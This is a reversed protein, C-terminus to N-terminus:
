SVQTAPPVIDRPHWLSLCLWLGTQLHYAFCSTVLLGTARDRDLAKESTSGGRGALPHHYPRLILWFCCPTTGERVEGGELLSRLLCTRQVAPDNFARPSTSLLNGTEQPHHRPGWSPLTSWDDWLPALRGQLASRPPAALLLEAQSEM